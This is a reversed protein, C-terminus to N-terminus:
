RMRERIVDAIGEAADALDIGDKVTSPLGEPIADLQRIPYTDALRKVTGAKFLVLSLLANLAGDRDGMATYSMLQGVDYAPGLAFGMAVDASEMLAIPEDLARTYALHYAFEAEGRATEALRAAEVEADFDSQEAPSPANRTPTAKPRLADLPTPPVAGTADDM